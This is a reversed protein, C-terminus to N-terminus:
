VFDIKILYLNNQYIKIPTNFIIFSDIFKNSSMLFPKKFILVIKKLFNDIMSMIVNCNKNFLSLTFIFDNDFYLLVYNVNFYIIFFYSIFTSTNLLTLIALLLSSIKIIM